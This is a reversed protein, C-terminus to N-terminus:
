SSHTCLSFVLGHPSIIFLDCAIAIWCTSAQHKCRMIAIWTTESVLTIDRYTTVSACRCGSSIPGARPQAKVASHFRPTSVSRGLRKLTLIALISSAILYCTFLHDSVTDSPQERNRSQPELYTPISMESTFLHRPNHTPRPPCGFGVLAPHIAKVKASMITPTRSISAVHPGRAIRSM